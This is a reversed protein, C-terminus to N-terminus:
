KRGAKKTPADAYRKAESLDLRAPVDIPPQVADYAEGAERAMRAKMGDLWAQYRRETEAPVFEARRAIRDAELQEAQSVAANFQRISGELADAGHKAFQALHARIDTTHTIKSTTM